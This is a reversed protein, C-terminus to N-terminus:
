WSLKSSAFVSAGFVSLWLYLMHQQKRYTLPLSFSTGGGDPHLFMDFPVDAADAQAPQSRRGTGTRLRAGRHDAKKIAFIAESHRSAKQPPFCLMLPPASPHARLSVLKVVTLQELVCKEHKAPAFLQKWPRKHLGGCHKLNNDLREKITCKFSLTGNKFWGWTRKYWSSINPINM